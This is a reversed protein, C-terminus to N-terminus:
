LSEGALLLDRATSLRAMTDGDDGTVDPHARKAARRYLTPVFLSPSRLMAGEAVVRKEPDSEAWEAILGAATEQTMPAPTATIAKWGVYQEGRKTVGYRDVARLAQLALALARANAQWTEYADTAYTLPGHRSDLSVRVGPFGVRARQRLMGDRRIDGPDADVQLVVMKAGLLEAESKLLSLTDDWSARFRYQSGRGRTVPDTWNGLPQIEFRM